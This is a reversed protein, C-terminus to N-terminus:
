FSGEVNHFPIKTLINQAWGRTIEDISEHIYLLFTDIIWGGLKRNIYRYTGDLKLKM